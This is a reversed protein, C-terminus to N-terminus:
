RAVGLYGMAPANTALPTSTWSIAEPRTGGVALGAAV